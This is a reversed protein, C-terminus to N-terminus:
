SKPLKLMKDIFGRTCYVYYQETKFLLNKNKIHARSGFKEIICQVDGFREAESISDKTHRFISFHPSSFKPIFLILEMSLM